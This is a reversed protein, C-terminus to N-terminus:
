GYREETWPDANNHYGRVEWFGPRDEAVLEIRSIWKASKWFYLHPLVARAPGGHVRELPAGNWHTAVLNEPRAWADLPLNTTYGDYGHFVVHSAEAMPQALNLLTLAGVGRWRNDYRSWATVCHIDNVYEQAPLDEVASWDMLLRNAVLGDVRLHWKARAVEPHVGLDLVPFDTVLRQGPPLRVAPDAHRGTLLRGEAAWQRKAQVLKERGPAVPNTM